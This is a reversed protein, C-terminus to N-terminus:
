LNELGARVSGVFDEEDVERNHRYALDVKINRLIHDAANLMTSIGDAVIWMASWRSIGPVPIPEEDDDILEVLEIDDVDFDDDDDYAM